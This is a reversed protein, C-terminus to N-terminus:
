RRNCTDEFASTISCLLQHFRSVFPLFLPSCWIKIGVTLYVNSGDSPWIGPGPYMTSRNTFYQKNFINSVGARVCLNRQTKNKKADKRSIKCARGRAFELKLIASNIRYNFPTIEIKRRFCFFCAFSCNEV